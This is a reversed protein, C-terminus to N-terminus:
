EIQSKQIHAKYYTLLRKPCCEKIYSVVTDRSEAYDSGCWKKVISAVASVYGLVLYQYDTKLLDAANETDYLSLLANNLIQIYSEFFASSEGSGFAKKYFTPREEILKLFGQPINQVSGGVKACESLIENSEGRVVYMILDDKDAFYRYFTTRTIQCKESIDQVTIKDFPRTEMLAVLADSIIRRQNVAFPM